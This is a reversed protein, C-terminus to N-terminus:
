DCPANCSPLSQVPAVHRTISDVLRYEIFDGVDRSHESAQRAGLFEGGLGVAAQTLDLIVEM